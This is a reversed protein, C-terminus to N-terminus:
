NGSEPPRPPQEDLLGMEKARRFLALGDDDNNSNNNDDDDPANKDDDSSAHKPLSTKRLATPKFPLKKLRKPPSTAAGGDAM